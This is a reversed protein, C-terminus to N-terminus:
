LLADDDAPMAETYAEIAAAYDSEDMESPKGLKKTLKVYAPKDAEILAKAAETM